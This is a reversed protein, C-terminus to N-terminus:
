GVTLHTRTPLTVVGMCLMIIVNYLPLTLQSRVSISSALLPLDSVFWYTIDCIVNYQRETPLIYSGGYEWVGMWRPGM